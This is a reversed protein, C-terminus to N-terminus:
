RLLYIAAIIFVILSTIFLYVRHAKKTVVTKMRQHKLALRENYKAQVKLLKAECEARRENSDSDNFKSLWKLQNRLKREEHMLSVLHDIDAQVAADMDNM